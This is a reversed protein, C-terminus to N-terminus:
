LEEDKIGEVGTKVEVIQKTLWNQGKKWTVFLSVIAPHKEKLAGLLWDMTLFDLNGGGQELAKQIKIYDAPKVLAWLSEKNEVMPIIMEPTVNYITFFENIMGKFLLPVNNVILGRMSHKGLEKVFDMVM